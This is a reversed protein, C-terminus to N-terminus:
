PEGVFRRVLTSFAGRPAFACAVGYLFLLSVLTMAAFRDDYWYIVIGLLQTLATFGLLPVEIRRTARALPATLIM